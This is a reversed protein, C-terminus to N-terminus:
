LKEGVVPCLWSGCLYLLFDTVPSKSPLRERYQGSFRLLGADAHHHLYSHAAGSPCSIQNLVLSGTGGHPFLVVVRADGAHYYSPAVLRTAM